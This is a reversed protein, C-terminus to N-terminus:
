AGGRFRARHRALFLASLLLPGNEIEGSAVLEMLRDFPILHCRIDEAEGPEGGVRGDLAAPLDGLAVYAFIYEAKAGPSPYYAAVRVLEGLALGAEELAERRIAQEPTEGADVRGAIPELMWPQADGRAFPGPRFQEVLLVRDHVPDYPLVTAADGSIFVARTVQPSMAGDFRRFRLDIEEVAFFAAYPERRGEPLVDGPAASRRLTTPRLGARARVQSAAHTMMQPYRAFFDGAARTERLAMMVQAAVAAADGWRSAWDDLQWPGAVAIDRAPLYLHAPVRGAATEVTCAALRYGFGDEYFDLRARDDATLGSALLGEAVSGASARIAPFPGEVAAGVAHDALRAPLLPGAARGLVAALLPPHRLTGYFFM